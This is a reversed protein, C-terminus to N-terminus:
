GHTGTPRLPVLSAPRLGARRELPNPLQRRDRVPVAHSYREVQEWTSWGGQRKLELLNAGPQRMYNTAWTHRLIHASFRRVASRTRIRQFVKALGHKSFFTGEDTAIVPDDDQLSLRNRLYRDLERAVADHFDVTRSKRFKSTEARVTLQREGLNLDAVKLERVENLRLGTGALLVVLSHDREGPLGAGALVHELEEDKLPQRVDRSVRAKKVYRLVSSGHKDFLIEEQSLWNAFRKLTSAAARARFASGNPYKATPKRSLQDLFSNVYDKDIDAIIPERGLQARLYDTYAHLSTRYFEKTKQALDYNSVFFSGIATDLPSDKRLDRRRVIRATFTSTM